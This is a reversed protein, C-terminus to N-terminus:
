GSGPPLAETPAPYRRSLIRTMGFPTGESVGDRAGRSTRASSPSSSSSKTANSTAEIRGSFRTGAKTSATARAPATSERIRPTTAPPPSSEVASRARAVSAPPATTRRPCRLSTASRTAAESTTQRVLRVSPSGTVTRSAIASPRGTRAGDTPPMGSATTSPRSRCARRRPRRRRRRALARRARGHGSRTARHAFRRAGAVFRQVGHISHRVVVRGHQGPQPSRGTLIRTKVFM